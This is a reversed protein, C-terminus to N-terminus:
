VDEREQEDELDEKKQRKKEDLEFAIGFKEALLKGAEAIEPDLQKKRHKSLQDIFRQFAEHSQMFLAYNISLYPDMRHSDANELRLAEGFAAKANEPDDLHVLALALLTFVAPKQRLNAAASLFHFASAYQQMTIHVLGLNYLIKWDFPTLYLARKLCSIGAVFKKKGYFCMAINNWIPGSDPIRQIAIRYKKLASELDGHNQVIAGSSLIAKTHHPDLKLATGLQEMARQTHGLKLYLLGLPTYLEVCDPFAEIAARYIDIAGQYDNELTFIKALTEFIIVRKELGLAERLFHKSDDMNGLYMHCLGMNYLIEADGESYKQAESYIEIAAKHRGLLFLSRAAQKLNKISSPNLVACSQFLEFSEQIKGEERLILAMAYNAYECTGKSDSFQEEILARCKDYERRVFHLHILWNLRDVSQLELREM